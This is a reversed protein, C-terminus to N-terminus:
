GFLIPYLAAVGFLTANYGSHIAFPGWLSRTLTALTAAVTGVLAITATIVWGELGPHTVLRMHLLAFVAASAAIALPAAMKRSLWSLLVGRFYFEEAFPAILAGCLLGLPLGSPSHPVLEREAKTTHFQVLSHAALQSTMYMTLLALCVGGALAMLFVGWRIAGFRAVLADKAVRRAVRWVYFIGVIDFSATFLQTATGNTTLDSYLRAIEGKSTGLVDKAALAITMALLLLGLWTLMAQVPLFVDQWRVDRGERWTGSAAEGNEDQMFAGM